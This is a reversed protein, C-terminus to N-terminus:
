PKNMQQKIWANLSIGETAAKEKAKYYLAYEEPSFTLNFQILGQAYKRQARKLAETRSMNEGKRDMMKGIELSLLGLILLTKM